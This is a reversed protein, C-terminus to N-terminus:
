LNIERLLETIDVDFDRIRFPNFEGTRYKARIKGAGHFVFSHYKKMGCFDKMKKTQDEGVQIVKCFHNNLEKNMTDALEIADAIQHADRIIRKVKKKQVGADSDCINHGHNEGFFNVQIKVGHKAQLLSFFALTKKVKFHQPGNDSWVLIREIGKFVESSFLLLWVDRVFAFTQKADEAYYNFYQRYIEGSEDKAHLVLVLDSVHGSDIDRFKTFDQIVLIENKKLNRLQEKQSSRQHHCLPL